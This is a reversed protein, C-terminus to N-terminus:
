TSVFEPDISRRMLSFSQGLLRIKTQLSKMILGREENPCEKMKCTRLIKELFNEFFKCIKKPEISLPYDRNM